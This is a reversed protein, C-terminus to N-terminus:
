VSSHIGSRVLLTVVQALLSWIRATALTMRSDSHVASRSVQPGRERNSHEHIHMVLHIGGCFNVFSVPQRKSSRPKSSLALSLRDCLRTQCNGLFWTVGQSSRDTNESRGGSTGLPKCESLHLTNDFFGTFFSHAVINIVKTFIKSKSM